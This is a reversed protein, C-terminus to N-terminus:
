KIFASPFLEKNMQIIQQLPSNPIDTYVRRLERIDRAVLDRANNIGKTSRSVIGRPGRITHGVKPVLISPATKPNYGEAFNKMAAKQGVHHADLGPVAGKIENYPGVDYQKYGTAADFAEDGYRGIRTLNAAAGLYPVMAAMSLSAGTWDGRIASIGANALDPVWSFLSLAGSADMGLSTGDLGLQVGDWFGFTSAAGGGGGFDLAPADTLHTSTVRYSVGDIDSFLGSADTTQPGNGAGTPSDSSFSIFPSRGPQLWGDGYSGSLWGCAGTPCRERYGSPDNFSLPNNLVYSYRNFRQSNYPDSIIPDASLMRGLAPDYVRGNM